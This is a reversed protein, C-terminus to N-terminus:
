AAMGLQAGEVRQACGARRRRRLRTRAGRERRPLRAPEREEDWAVRAGSRRRVAPDRPSGRAGGRGALHRVAAPAGARAAGAALPDTRDRGPRALLKRTLPQNRGDVLSVVSFRSRAEPTDLEPVLGFYYDVLRPLIPQSTVYVVRSRPSRLLSLVLCLFREEYAPFVPILQDPVDMSISHVVVVTREVDGISRLSVSPWLARLRKQLESFEGDAMPSVYRGPARLPLFPAHGVVALQSDIEEVADPREQFLGLARRGLVVRHEMGRVRRPVVPPLDALRAMESAALPLDRADVGHETAALRREVVGPATEFQELLASVPLLPVNGERVLRDRARRENRAVAFGGLVVEGLRRM